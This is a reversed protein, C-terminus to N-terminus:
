DYRKKLIFDYREKLMRESFSLDSELKKGVISYKYIEPLIKRMAKNIYVGSNDFLIECFDWLTIILADFLENWNNEPMHSRMNLFIDFINVDGEDISADSQILDEIFRNELISELLEESTKYGKMSEAIKRASRLISIKIMRNYPIADFVDSYGNGILKGCKKIPEVQSFGNLYTFWTLRPNGNEDPHEDDAILRFSDFGMAYIFTKLNDIHDKQRNKGHISPIFGEEHWYTNLHPNVTVIMEDSNQNFIRKIGLNQIREKYALDNRSGEKYKVLNEITYNYKLRVCDIETNDFESNIIIETNSNTSTLYFKGTASEDPNLNIDTEACEPSLAIFVLETNESIGDTALMPAAIRLATEIRNQIYGQMAKIYGEDDSTMQEVLEFERILAQRVTLNVIGAGHEIVSDKITDIVAKNFVSELSQKKKQERKEKAAKTDVTSSLCYSRSQVLYIQDFIAKKTEDSLDLTQSLMFENAMKRLAEKSCYIGEQGYPFRINELRSINEENRKIKDAVTNFFITYNDALQIMRELVLQSVYYKLSNELYDHTTSVHTDCVECLRRKLKILANQEGHVAKGIPGLVKWIPNRRDRIYNLYEAPGQTGERKPDFDEERYASLDVGTIEKKLEVINKELKNIIDYILFRATIPHVKALFQYICEPKDKHFDMVEKSTPFLNDAFGNPKTDILNKAFQAYERMGEWVANIQAEADSFTKMKQNDVKCAEEKERVEDSDLLEDIMGNLLNIFETGRSIHQHNKMIYAEQAFKGLKAHDGLAEEEFIEVYAKKLEPKQVTSDSVMKANVAKSLAKFENDILLWEKQVLNQVTSFTVYEQAMQIPYQLRCMGAGAYRNMGANEILELVFNDEISRANPAVPSFMLIFAVRAIYNILEDLRTDGISGVDGNKEVIYVYDYPVNETSIDNSDYYELRLNDTVEQGLIPRMYFANLEKLCTYGNVCVADRNTSSPQVDEVIDSSVFMGRIICHSVSTQTKLFDRIYFPLNLFLGAGTGGTISGVIIITLKKNYPNGDVRQIRTIERFLPAFRGNDVSALSAMRSLTRVQGAGDTMRRKVLFENKPFWNRYEPHLKLYDNVKMDDSTQIIEMKHKDKLKTLDNVNTDVGLVAVYKRDEESLLDSISAAIKCGIGGTGIVVTPIQNMSM